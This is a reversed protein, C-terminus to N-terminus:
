SWGVCYPEPELDTPDGATSPPPFSQRFTFALDSPGGDRLQALRRLGENVSPLTGAEIWWLVQYAGVPREFWHRRLIMVSRHESKYAFAFLSEVDRWVSMNVIFRPNEDVKIDTANGAESQLRWVFGSSREALANIDDLRNMFGMMRPDDLDYRATGVNMQALQWENM